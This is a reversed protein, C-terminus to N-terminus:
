FVKKTLFLLDELSTELGNHRSKYWFAKDVQVNLDLDSDLSYDLLNIFNLRGEHKFFIFDLGLFLGDSCSVIGIEESTPFVEAVLALFFPLLHVRPRYWIYWELEGIKPECRIYFSDRLMKLEADFEKGQTSFPEENLHTLPTSFYDVYKGCLAKVCDLYESTDEFRDEISAQLFSEDDTHKWPPNEEQDWDGATEFGLCKALIEVFEAKALHPKFLDWNDELDFYALDEVDALGAIVALTCWREM